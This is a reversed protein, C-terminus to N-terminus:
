GGARATPAARGLARRRAGGLAKVKEVLDHRFDTGGSIERSTTPKALCESAGMQLAKLTVEANRLTLTSAMIVKLNPSKRLLEPLATLGDMVPMEIDLIVVEIDHRDLAQVAMQGNGVSAVVQIAPDEELMRTELGRVVASDDVVMVRIPGGLTHSTAESTTITM